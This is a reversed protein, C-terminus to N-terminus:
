LWRKRKFWIYICVTVLVMLGIALPYGQKWNLEPMSKFNMGYIGAIFTLPLFFVSFITLVRITENTKQAATNFYINLLHNTSESLSDFISQQKVYLDRIDRTYANSNDEPDVQDIIDYSLLLIRKIVDTKRKLYYLGKLVPKHHDKLFIHEEYYDLSKNLKTAPENFTLLAARMIELYVHLPKECEGQKVLQEAIRPLADWDKRHITIIFDEGLFVSVKNTLESVSDAEMDNEAHYFRLISFSYLKLREYKPLHDPETADQISQELLHFKEALSALENEEPDSIDLWTYQQKGITALEQTM